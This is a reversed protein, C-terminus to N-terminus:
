MFLQFHETESTNALDGNDGVRMGGVTNPNPPYQWADFNVIYGQLDNSGICGQGVEEGGHRVHSCYEQPFSDLYGMAV